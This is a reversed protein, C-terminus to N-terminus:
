DTPPALRPSHVQPTCSSTITSDPNWRSGQKRRRFPETTLVCASVEGLATGSCCSCVSHAGVSLIGSNTLGSTWSSSRGKQGPLRNFVETHGFPDTSVVTFGGGEDGEHDERFSHHIAYPISSSGEHESHHFIRKWGSGLCGKLHPMDVASHASRAYKEAWPNLDFTVITSSRPFKSWNSM